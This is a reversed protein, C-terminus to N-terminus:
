VTGLASVSEDLFIEFDEKLFHLTSQTNVTVPTDLDGWAYLTSGTRSTFLGFAVITGWDAGTAASPDSPVIAANFNIDYINKISRNTASMLDHIEVRSYNTNTSSVEVGGSGDSGPKTTFLGLWCNENSGISFSQSKGCINNLLATSKSTTLLM